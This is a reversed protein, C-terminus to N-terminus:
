SARSPQLAGPEAPAAALRMRLVVLLAALSLGVAIGVVLLVVLQTREVGSTSSVAGPRGLAAELDVEGPASTLAQGDASHASTPVAKGVVLVGAMGEGGATGHLSCFVRHVGPEVATLEATSGAAVLDTDFSGDVATLTHPLAGENVVTITADGPAFHATGTFCSDQMVVTAGEGFGACASTDVGGGGAHSVGPILMLIVTVALLRRM